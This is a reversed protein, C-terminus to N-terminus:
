LNEYPLRNMVFSYVRPFGYRPNIVTNSWADALVKFGSDLYFQKGRGLFIKMHVIALTDKNTSRIFFKINVM